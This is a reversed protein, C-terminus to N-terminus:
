EIGRQTSIVLVGTRVLLRAVIARDHPALTALQALAGVRLRTRLRAIRQRTAAHSIGLWAACDRLPIRNSVAILLDRDDDTCDSTLRVLFERVVVRMCADASDDDADPAHVVRRTYDSCAAAVTPEGGVAVCDDVDRRHRAADARALDSLRHRFATTAFGAPSAPLPGHMLQLVIDDLFEVVLTERDAGAIGARRAADVLLPTMREIFQAIASADDRRIAELLARDGADSRRAAGTRDAGHMM